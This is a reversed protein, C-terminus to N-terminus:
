RRPRNAKRTARAAKQKARAARRQKQATAGGQWEDWAQGMLRAVEPRVNLDQLYKIAQERTDAGQWLPSRATVRALQGIPHPRRQQRWLWASFACGAPAPREANAAVVAPDPAEVDPLGPRPGISELQEQMPTLRDTDTM